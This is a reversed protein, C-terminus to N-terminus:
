AQENIKTPLFQYDPLLEYITFEPTKEAIPTKPQFKNVGILVKGGEKYADLTATQQALLENKLEGSKAYATFGGKTEIEQVLTWAKNALAVTLNEIFYSGDAQNLNKDLKAEDRMLNHINRSIRAAMADEEKWAINWPEIMVYQAGGIVASLGSSTARLINTHEDSHAYTNRLNCAIIEPNALPQSENNLIGAWLWRIARTKAIETLFQNGYGLKFILPKEFGNKSGLEIAQSLCFAIEQIVSAGRNRLRLGNIIISNDNELEIEKNDKLLTQYVDCFSQHNIFIPAVSKDINLTAVEAAAGMFSKQFWVAEAGSMLSNLAKTNAKQADTEYIPELSKWPSSLPVLQPLPSPLQNQWAEIEFGDLSKWILFDDFTKGKLEREVRAKWASTSDKDFPLELENKSM